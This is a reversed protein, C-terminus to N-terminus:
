RIGHIENELTELRKMIESFLIKEGFIMDQMQQYDEELLELQNSNPLLRIQKLTALDYKASNSRYFKQKFAVVQALLGCKDFARQKIESKSMQYLDYYHRSYRLPTRNNLRHAEKHLITAKEWFTREAKVLKILNPSGQFLQPLTEEVYSTIDIMETSLMSALPGIELRVVKQIGGSSSEQFVSPYHFLLTQADNSDITFSFDSVKEAVLSELEVRLKENIWLAASQNAKENFLEQKRNSREEWQTNEEYGLLKWDLVLDIDESFREIIRYGKSLSTGGKFAFHDKHISQHFLIDLLFCVWFDKELILVSMMKQEATVFFSDRKDQTKLKLFQEM